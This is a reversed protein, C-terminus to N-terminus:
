KQYEKIDIHNLNELHLMIKKSTELSPRYKSSFMKSTLNANKLLKNM